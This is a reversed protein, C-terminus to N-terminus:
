RDHRGPYPRDYIDERRWDRTGPLPGKAHRARLFALEQEWASLDRIAEAPRAPEAAESLARDLAIRVYEAEALGMRAAVQKLRKDQDKRLYLQKRVM